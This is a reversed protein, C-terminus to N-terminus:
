DHMINPLLGVNVLLLEIAFMMGGIPTNFTAVIGAAAGASILLGLSKVPLRFARGLISGFASGIQIIPGERGVSGGSGISVASALSKM